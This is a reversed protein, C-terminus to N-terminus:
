DVTLRYLRPPPTFVAKEETSIYRAGPGYTRSQIARIILENGQDQYLIRLKFKKIAPGEFVLANMDEGKYTGREHTGKLAEQWYGELIVEGEASVQIQVKKKNGIEGTYIGENPGGCGFMMLCLLYSLFRFINTNCM